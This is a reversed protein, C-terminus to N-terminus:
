VLRSKLTHKSSVVIAKGRMKEVHLMLAHTTTGKEYLLVNKWIVEEKVGFPVIIKLQQKKEVCFYWFVKIIKIINLSPDHSQQLSRPETM